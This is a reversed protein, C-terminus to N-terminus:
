GQQGSFEEKRSLYWDCSAQRLLSNHSGLSGWCSVLSAVSPLDDEREPGTEEDKFPPPYALPSQLDLESM